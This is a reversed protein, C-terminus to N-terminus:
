EPYGTVFASAIQATTVEAGTATDILAIRIGREITQKFTFSISGNAPTVFTRRRATGVMLAFTGAAAPFIQVMEARIRVNTQFPMEFEAPAPVEEREANSRIEQLLARIAALERIVASTVPTVVVSSEVNHPPEQQGSTAEDRRMAM